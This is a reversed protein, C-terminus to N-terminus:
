SYEIGVKFRGKIYELGLQAILLKKSLMLVGQETFAYPAKRTGGCSSTGNQFILNKFEEQSLQFM